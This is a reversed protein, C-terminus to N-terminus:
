CSLNGLGAINLTFFFKHELAPFCENKDLVRPSKALVVLLGYKKYTLVIKYIYGSKESFLIVTLIVLLLVFPSKKSSQRKMYVYM